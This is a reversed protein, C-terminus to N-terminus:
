GPRRRVAFLAVVSGLLVVPAPLPVPAATIQLQYSFDTSGGGTFSFDAFGSVAAVYTGAILADYSLLSDFGPGGDDDVALQAGGLDYLAVVPDDGFQPGEPTNVALTIRTNDAVSFSYFDADSNDVVLGGFVSGRFGFVNIVGGDGFPDVDQATAVSGNDVALNETAAFAGGSLLALLAAGCLSLSSKRYNM